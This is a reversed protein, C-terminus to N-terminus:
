QLPVVAPAADPPAPLVALHAEEPAGFAPLPIGLIEVMGKGFCFRLVRGYRKGPGVPVQKRGFPFSFCPISGSNSCSCSFRVGSWLRVSLGMKWPLDRAGCSRWCGGRPPFPLFGQFHVLACRSPCLRGQSLGSFMGRACKEGEGAGGAKSVLTSPPQAMRLM